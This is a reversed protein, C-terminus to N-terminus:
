VGDEQRNLDDPAAANSETTTIASEWGGGLSRYLRIVDSLAQQRALLLAEQSVVLQQQNDLVQFFDVLGAQYLSKSMNVSKAAAEAAAALRDIQQQSRIVGDASNEVEALAELIKQELALQAQESRSTQVAINSEIRRGTLLPFLLNPGLTYYLSDLDFVGGLTDSSLTLNGSLSLSPYREAEAAGIRAVTAQYRHLAQRIDARRTLLDAPLGIGLLAPVEPMPGAPSLDHGPSKGLLVRIRNKTGTLTRELEPIRSRTTELLRESRAVALATGSGTQYLDRALQLSQEQLRINQEIVQRRAELTRQEIYALSIEAALSVLLSQRESYTARVDAEAAELLRSIRGWIDLEWGAVLGASFIDITRGPPIAQLTVTEDGTEARNYGLAAALQLQKDAGVIGQRANAESIRAAAAKLALNSSFLQEILSDLQPDNFRRWWRIEPQDATFQIAETTQWQDQMFPSLDPSSYDPGVTCSQCTMLLALLCLHLLWKRSSRIM